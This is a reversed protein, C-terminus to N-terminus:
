AVPRPSNFDPPADALCQVGRSPRSSPSLLSLGKLPRTELPPIRRRPSPQLHLRPLRRHPRQNAASHQDSGLPTNRPAARSLYSESAHRPSHRRFFRLGQSRGMRAGSFIRRSAPPRQPEPPRIRLAS